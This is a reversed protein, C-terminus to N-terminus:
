LLKKGPVQLPFFIEYKLQARLNLEVSLKNWDPNVRRNLGSRRKRAAFQILQWVCKKPAPSREEIAIAVRKLQVVGGLASM